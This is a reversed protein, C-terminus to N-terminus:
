GRIREMLDTLKSLDYREQPVCLLNISITNAFVNVLYGRFNKDNYLPARHQYMRYGHATIWARLAASNEPRDDEVYLLPRCRAITEEAGMLVQLEHGEVDAKLFNLRKLEFSDLTRVEVEQGDEEVEVLEFGGPNCLGRSYDPKPIRITAAQASLATRFGVVTGYRLECQETNRSLLDFIEGQPEFAFIRGEPGLHHIIPLTLAGVNAGAEVVVDGPNIVRRFLDAESESWEGYLELSRGLWKDTRYFSMDGYRCPMTVIADPPGISLRLHQYDLTGAAYQLYRAIEQVVPQWNM